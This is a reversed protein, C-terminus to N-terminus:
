VEKVKEMRSTGKLDQENSLKRTLKGYFNEPPYLQLNKVQFPPQLCHTSRAQQRATLDAKDSPSRSHLELNWPSWVVASTSALVYEM